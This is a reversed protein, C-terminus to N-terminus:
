FCYPPQSYYRNNQNRFVLGMTLLKQDWTSYTYSRAYATFNKASLNKAPLNASSGRVGLRKMNQQFFSSLHCPAHNVNDYSTLLEIYACSYPIKM